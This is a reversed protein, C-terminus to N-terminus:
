LDLEVRVCLYKSAHVYLSMLIPRQLWFLVARFRMALPPVKVFWQPVFGDNKM